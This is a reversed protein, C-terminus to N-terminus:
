TKKKGKKEDVVGGILGGIEGGIMAGLAGGFYAGIGAGIAAGAQSYSRAYVAITPSGESDEVLDFSGVAASAIVLAVPSATGSAAMKDYTDRSEFFARQVNGNGEGAEYGIKYLGLLTDAEEDTILEATTLRALVIKQEAILDGKSEDIVRRTEARIAHMADTMGIGTNSTLEM